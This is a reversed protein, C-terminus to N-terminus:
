GLFFPREYCFQSRCYCIIYLRLCAIDREYFCFLKDSLSTLFITSSHYVIAHKSVIEPRIRFLDLLSIVLLVL